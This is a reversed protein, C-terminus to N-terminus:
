KISALFEETQKGLRSERNQLLPKFLADVNRHVGINGVNHSHLGILPGLMLTPMLRLPVSRRVNAAATVAIGLSVLLFTYRYMNYNKLVDMQAKKIAFQEDETWDGKNNCLDELYGVKAQNVRFRRAFRKSIAQYTYSGDRLREGFTKGTPEEDSIQDRWTRDM